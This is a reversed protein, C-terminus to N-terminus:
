RRFIAHLLSDYGAQRRVKGGGHYHGYEEPLRKRNPRVVRDYQSISVYFDQVDMCEKMCRDMFARRSENRKPYLM